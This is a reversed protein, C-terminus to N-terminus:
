RGAETHCMRGNWYRPAAYAAQALMPVKVPVFGEWEQASIQPGIGFYVRDGCFVSQTDGPIVLLFKREQRNAPITETEADQWEFYCNPHVTRLIQAGQRRYVTVVADCLSYDLPCSM